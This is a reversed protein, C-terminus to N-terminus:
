RRSLYVRMEGEGRNAWLRYPILRVTKKEEKEGQWTRYLPSIFEAGQENPLIRYGEVDLAIANAGSISIKEEKIEARPDIYLSGLGDGNDAEEACYVIPGRVLAVKGLDENVRADVSVFKPKLEFSLSITTEEDPVNVYLYGDRVDESSVNVGEIQYHDECWSPIRLALTLPEPANGSSVRISVNGSEPLGSEIQIKRGNKELESGMYLHVFLTDEKETFAYTGISAVLRALNPPCCACGFWKQRVPKIHMKREDLHCAKPIVELPNVYFFSKGDLAIGSLIGNFLALEMVDAYERKAEIQLMRRAFFVLGISACTESYDTDNPLDFPFSFAEGLHTAGIGGTIYMKESVTSKWLARCAAFLKEDGSRRALDAMGSYLYVARVAHGVAEDQDRVPIHAQHYYDVKYEEGKPTPHEQDFYLPARGRQDIFYEALKAYKEEGTVESLRLLAMEAIEHGPYGHIKGEETGFREAVYDAFRMAARLLKEKGTGQYYAIAGEVLHGLCYLEHHDRLNTFVKDMGNIIYYTDLYGDETQARCVLDIAEDATKELEPDPHTALSYGVAEIWKSFDSDQFVFGYFEDDKPARPDDPLVNFGRYSYKPPVFAKGLSQKKEHLLAAARFNHMCYSPAAEPIRDNLVEWQYPIVEKRILEQKTTWFSDQIHVKKIDIPNSSM